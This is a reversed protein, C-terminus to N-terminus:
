SNPECEPPLREDSSNSHAIIQDFEDNTQLTLLAENITINSQFYRRLIAGGVGGFAAATAVARSCETLLSAQDPQWTGIFVAAASVGFAWDRVRRCRDLQSLDHPVQDYAELYDKKYM